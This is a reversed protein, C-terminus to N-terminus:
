TLIQKPNLTLIYLVHILTSFIMMGLGILYFLGIAEMNLSIYFAEMMEDPTMEQTFGLASLSNPDFHVNMLHVDQAAVLENRLLHRSLLDSISNGSFIALTIGVAAPLMVEILLQSVIKSKKEGLALYIGIEHRRDRLFLIMLLSLILLSAGIAVNLIWSAMEQLHDMSSSIPAFSNTLDEVTMLAPLLPAVAEKFAEIENADSLEIVATAMDAIEASTQFWPFDDSHMGTIELQEEFAAAHNEAQFVQFAEATPNTTFVTYLREQIIMQDQWNIAMEPEHENSNDVIDFIGIVELVFTTSAFLNEERSHWDLDWSDLQPRFVNLDFDFRSGVSLNNIEALRRSIIMPHIDSSPLSLQAETFISGEVLEVIGERMLLPMPESTGRIQILSLNNEDSDMRLDYAQLQDTEINAFISYNVRSVYPLEVMQRIIEPSLTPNIPQVGQEDFYHDLAELDTKFSVVPRMQHRLNAETNTVAEEVSLAGAIATGLIFVWLFLIITKSLRRHSSITARKFVHM